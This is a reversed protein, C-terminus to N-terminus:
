CTPRCGPCTHLPWRSCWGFSAMIVLYSFIGAFAQAVGIVAYALYM